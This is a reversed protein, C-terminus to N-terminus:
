QRDVGQGHVEDGEGPHHLSTHSLHFTYVHLICGGGLGRERTGCSRGMVRICGGCGFWQQAFVIEIAYSLRLLVFRVGRGEFRRGICGWLEGGDTADTYGDTLVITVMFLRDVDGGGGVCGCM